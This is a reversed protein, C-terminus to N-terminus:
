RTVSDPITTTDFTSTFYGCSSEGPIDWATGGPRVALLFPEESLEPVWMGGGKVPPPRPHTVSGDATIRRREGEGQGERQPLPSGSSGAKRFKNSSGM